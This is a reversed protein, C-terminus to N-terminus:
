YNQKRIRGDRKHIVITTDQNLAKITAWAIAEQQTEIVRLIKDSGERKIYWKNDDKRYLVHYKGLVPKPEVPTKAISDEEDVIPKELEKLEEVSLEEPIDIDGVMVEDVSIDESTREIPEEEISDDTEEVLFTESESLDVINEKQVTEIQEEVPMAEEFETKEVEVNQEPELDDEELPEEERILNEVELNEPKNRNKPIFFIFYVAIIVVIVVVFIIITTMYPELSSLFM